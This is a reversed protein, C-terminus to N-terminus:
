TASTGQGTHPGPTGDAALPDAALPDAAGAVGTGAVGTGAEPTGEMTGETTLAEPLARPPAIGLFRDVFRWRWSVWVLVAWAALAVLIVAAERLGIPSLNFFARFPPVLLVIVFAVALIGALWTPRRDPSIPEIVAWRRTPPEVFIILLLGAGVLFATVATRALPEVSALERM